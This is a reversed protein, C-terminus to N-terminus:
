HDSVMAMCLLYVERVGDRELARVCRYLTAGTTTVDDLLLVRSGSLSVAKSVTFDPQGSSWRERLKRWSQSHTGDGRRLAYEVFPRNLLRELGAGFQSLQNYGRQRLRSPTLPVPIIYDLQGAIQDLRSREWALQAMWGGIAPQNRYKLHHLLSQVMGGNSFYLLAASKRVALLPSFEVDM